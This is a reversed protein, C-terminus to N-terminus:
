VTLIPGGMTAVLVLGVVSIGSIATFTLSCIILASLCYWCNERSATWVQALTAADNGTASNGVMGPAGSTGLVSAKVVKAKSKM